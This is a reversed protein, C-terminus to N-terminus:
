ENRPDLIPNETYFTPPNHPMYRMVKKELNACFPEPKNASSITDQFGQQDLVQVAKFGTLIHRRVFVTHAWAYPRLRHGCVIHHPLPPPLWNLNM